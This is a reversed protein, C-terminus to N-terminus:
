NVLPKAYICTRVYISAESVLQYLLCPTAAVWQFELQFAKKPNYTHDYHIYCWEPRDSKVNSDPNMEVMGSSALQLSSATYRFGPSSLLLTLKIMIAM